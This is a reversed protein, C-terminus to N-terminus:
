QRREFEVDNPNIDLERCIRLFIDAAPVRGEEIYKSISLGGVGVRMGLERMSMERDYLKKEILEGFPHQGTVDRCMVIEFRVDKGLELREELAKELESKKVIARVKM